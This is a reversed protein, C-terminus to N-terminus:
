RLGALYRVLVDVQGDSLLGKWSPMRGGDFGPVVFADPHLISQRLYEEASMGPVRDAARSGIGALSPGVLTVGPDLSHCNTCGAQGALVTESFLAAGDVPGTVVTDVTSGGCAAALVAVTAMPTAVKM